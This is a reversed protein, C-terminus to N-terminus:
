SLRYTKKEEKKQHLGEALSYCAACGSTCRVFAEVWHSRVPCGVVFLFCVFLCALCGLLLGV